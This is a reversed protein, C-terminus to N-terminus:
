SNTLKEISKRLRALAANVDAQLAKWGAAAAKKMDAVKAESTKLEAQLTALERELSAKAEGTAVSARQELKAMAAKATAIDDEAAKIFAERRNADTAYVFPPLAKLSEASAGPIVLRGTQDQIQRIPIAVDRRGMGIFGGVGVIAFSVNRDPAVILDEVKGIKKGSENYVPKGLLTKKVSWGLALQTSEVVSFDIRTSAGAVQALTPASSCLLAALALGARAARQPSKTM